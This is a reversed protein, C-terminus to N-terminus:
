PTIPASVYTEPVTKDRSRQIDPRNGVEIGTVVNTVGAGVRSMVCVKGTSELNISNILNVTGNARPQTVTAPWRHDTSQLPDAMPPLYMRGKSGLGRVRDTTLTAVCATQLPYRTSSTAWGAQTTGTSYVPESDPPYTGDPRVTAAKLWQLVFYNPILMDAAGWVIKIRGYIANVQSQTYPVAQNVRCTTEAYEQGGPVSWRITLLQHESTFPM